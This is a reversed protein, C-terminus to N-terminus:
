KNEPFFSFFIPLVYSLLPCPTSSSSSSSSSSVADSFVRNRRRAPLLPSQRQQPPLTLPIKRSMAIAVFRYHREIWSRDNRKRRIPFHDLVYLSNLAICENLLVIGYWCNGGWNVQDCLRIGGINRKALPTASTTALLLTLTTALLAYMTSSLRNATRNPLHRTAQHHQTSTRAPHPPQPSQSDSIHRHCTKTFLPHHIPYTLIQGVRSWATDLIHHSTFIGLLPAAQWKCIFSHPLTM